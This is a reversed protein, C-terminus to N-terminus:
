GGSVMAILAVEDGPAVTDDDGAFEHNVALRSAPIVDALAPTAAELARKVAACSAREGEVTVGVERTGVRQAAPGFLKITVRM